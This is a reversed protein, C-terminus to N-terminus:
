RGPPLLFEGRYMGMRSGNVDAGGYVHRRDRWLTYRPLRPSVQAVIQPEEAYKTCTAPNVALAFLNM